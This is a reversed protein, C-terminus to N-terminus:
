DRGRGRSQPLRSYAAAVPRRSAVLRGSRPTASSSCTSIVVGRGGSPQGGVDDTRSLQQSAAFTIRRTFTSKRHVLGIPLGPRFREDRTSQREATSAPSVPVAGSAEPPALARDASAGTEVPLVSVVRAATAASVAPPEARRPPQPAARAATGAPLVQRVATAASAARAATEASAVQRLAKSVPPPTAVPVAM